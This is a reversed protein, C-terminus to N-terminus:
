WECSVVAFRAVMPITGVTDCYNAKKTKRMDDARCPIAVQGGGAKDCWLTGANDKGDNKYDCSQGFLNGIRFSGVPWPPLEGDNMKVETQFVQAQTQAYCIPSERFKTGFFLWAYSHGAGDVTEEYIITLAKEKSPPPPPPVEQEPPKNLGNAGANKHDEETAGNWIVNVGQQREWSSQPSTIYRRIEKVRDM